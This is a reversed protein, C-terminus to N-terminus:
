HGLSGSPGPACILTPGPHAGDARGLSPEEVGGPHHAGAMTGAYRVGAGAGARADGGRAGSEGGGGRGQDPPATPCLGPVVRRRPRPPQRVRRLPGARGPHAPDPRPVPPRRRGAARIGRAARRWVVMAPRAADTVGSPGSSCLEPAELHRALQRRHALRYRGVSPVCCTRTSLSEEAVVISGV